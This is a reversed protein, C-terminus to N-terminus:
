KSKNKNKSKKKKKGNGEAPSQEAFVVPAASEKQKKKASGEDEEKVIVEDVSRKRQQKEASPQSSGKDQQKKKSKKSSKPTASPDDYGAFPDLKARNKKAEKRETKKPEAVAKQKSEGSSTDESDNEFRIHTGSPGASVEEAGDARSKKSGNSIAANIFRAAAEKDLSYGRKAPPQEAHKFKDFYGKMRGLELMVPHTNPDLGATRLYVWILDHVMYSTMVDLRAKQLPELSSSLEEFSTALLPELASELSTLSTSLEDLTQFTEDSDSAM